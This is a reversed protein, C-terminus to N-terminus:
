PNGNKTFADIKALNTYIDIDGHFTNITADGAFDELLCDGNINITSIDTDSFSKQIRNQALANFTFLLIVIYAIYKMNSATRSLLESVLFFLFAEIKM